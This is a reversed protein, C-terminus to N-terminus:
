KDLPTRGVTTRRKTPDLSTTFSSARAWQPSNRWFSFINTSRHKITPSKFKQLLVVAHNIHYFNRAIIEAMHTVHGM